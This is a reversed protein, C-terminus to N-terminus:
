VIQNSDDNPVGSPSVPKRILAMSDRQKEGKPTLGWYLKKSTAEWKSVILGLAEFQMLMKKMFQGDSLSLMSFGKTFLGNKIADVCVKEVVSVNLMEISIVHFIECLTTKLHGNRFTDNPSRYQYDITIETDDFAIDANQTLSIITAQAENLKATLVENTEKQTMIERRLSAEDFDVGRQWGPREIETKAKMISIAIKGTLDDLSRWTSALRNGLAKKKFSALNAKSAPNIESKEPALDVSDDLAFVLVPIGNEKAYDYEMETYSIGTNPNISGYRKGIILIYYDCLDIVKKIVNFQEDDTAVFLEMGAPICDAMLLIDLTQRREEVLDQFTSSIFVQFKKTTM